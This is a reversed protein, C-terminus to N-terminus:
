RGTCQKDVCQGMYTPGGCSKCVGNMEASMEDMSPVVGPKPWIPWNTPNDTPMPYNPQNPM